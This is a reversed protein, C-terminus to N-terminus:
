WVGIVFVLEFHILSKFMLGSVVFSRSSLVSFFNSISTKAIIKKAPPHSM